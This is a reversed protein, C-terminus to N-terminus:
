VGGGTVEAGLQDVIQLFQDETIERRIPLIRAATGEPPMLGPGTEDAFLGLAPVGLTVAYHFLPTNASVLLDSRSLFAVAQPLDDTQARYPELFALRRELEEAAPRGEPDAVVMVRAGYAKALLRAVAVFKAFDPERGGEAGPEIAVLLRESRPQWFHILREARKADAEPVRGRVSDDLFEVFRGSVAGVMDLLSQALYPANAPPAVEFNLFPDHTGTGFGVRLPVRSEHALALLKADPDTDFLFLIDPELKAIEKGARRVETVQASGRKEALVVAKDTIRERRLAATNAAGTVVCLKATEFRDRLLRLAPLVLPPFRTDEGFCVVLRKPAQLTKPIAVPKAPARRSVWERQYRLYLGLFDM